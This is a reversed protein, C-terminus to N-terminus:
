LAFAVLEGSPFLVLPRLVLDLARTQHPVTLTKNGKGRMSSFLIMQGYNIAPEMKVNKEEM